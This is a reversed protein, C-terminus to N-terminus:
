KKAKNAATGKNAKINESVFVQITKKFDEMKNKALFKKFLAEFKPATQPYKEFTKEALKSITEDNIPANMYKGNKAVYLRFEGCYTCQEFIVKGGLLISRDSKHEAGGGCSTCQPPRCSMVIDDNEIIHIAIIGGCSVCETVVYGDDHEGIRSDGGCTVCPHTLTAIIKAANKGLVGEKDVIEQDGCHGCINWYVGKVPTEKLIYNSGGCNTCSKSM